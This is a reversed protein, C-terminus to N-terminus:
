HLRSSTIFRGETSSENPIL